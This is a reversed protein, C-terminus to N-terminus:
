TMGPVRVTVTTGVDPKSEFTLKGGILGIMGFAIPVGLGSGKHAQVEDREGRFYIEGLRALDDATMGIGNDRITILLDSGDGAASITVEGTDEPSYRLGNEVLKVLAVGLLESDLNLLPLGQPIDFILKRKLDEALRLLDKEIQMALNKFMDMKPKAVLVGHRLKNMYRLDSSLSQLRLTNTKVTNMFDAQMPNLEGVQVIMDSYGRINTLPTGLEHLAHGIFAAEDAHSLDGGASSMAAATALQERHEEEADALLTAIEEIQAPLRIPIIAGAKAADLLAEIKQKAASLASTEDAM